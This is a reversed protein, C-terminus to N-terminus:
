AWAATWSNANAPSDPDNPADAGTDPRYEDAYALDFPGVDHMAEDAAM